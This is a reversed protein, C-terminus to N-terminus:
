ALITKEAKRMNGSMLAQKWKGIDKGIQCYNGMLNALFNNILYEYINRFCFQDHGKIDGQLFVTIDSLHNYNNIINHHLYTHAERGVNPLKEWQHFKFQPIIERGKHYIHCHNAMPTLWNLDESYHAIVFEYNFDSSPFLSYQLNRDTGMMANFKSPEPYTEEPIKRM